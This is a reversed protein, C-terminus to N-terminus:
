LHQSSNYPSVSRINMGTQAIASRLNGSRSWIKVSGDEGATALASGDNNWKLSIIAGAECVQVKKEERGSKSM